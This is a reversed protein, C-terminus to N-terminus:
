STAAGVGGMSPTIKKYLMSAGVLMGYGLLGCIMITVINAPTITIFSRDM